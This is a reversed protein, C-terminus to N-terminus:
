LTIPPELGACSERSSRGEVILYRPLIIKFWPAYDEPHSSIDEQLPGMAVWKFDSVEEPSPNVEGEYTGVFVHNYEHECLKDGFDVKYILSFIESLDCDFGMEEMLRRHVAKDLVEEPRPHSCCTNTWLDPTHYKTDARKQLLLERKSNFILISFARHLLGAQHTKLKEESGIETDQRDVLIV